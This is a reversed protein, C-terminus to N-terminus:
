RAALGVAGAPLGSVLAVPELGGDPQIRFGSISGDRGNRAYLFGSGRSPALDAPADGATATVGNPDLLELAGGSSVAFFRCTTAAATSRWCGAAM